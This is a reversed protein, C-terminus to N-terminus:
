VSASFLSFDASFNPSTRIKNEPDTRGQKMQQVYVLNM